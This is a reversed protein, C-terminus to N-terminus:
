TIYEELQHSKRCALCKRSDKVPNLYHNDHIEGITNDYFCIGDHLCGYTIHRGYCYSLFTKHCVPCEFALLERTTM